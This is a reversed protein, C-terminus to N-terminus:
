ESDIKTVPNLKIVRDILWADCMVLSDGSLNTFPLTNVGSARRTLRFHFLFRQLFRVSDKPAIWEGKYLYFPNNGPMKVAKEISFDRLREPVVSPTPSGPSHFDRFKTTPYEGIWPYSSIVKGLTILPVDSSSTYDLYITEAPSERYARLIANYDNRCRLAYVDVTLIHTSVLIIILASLANKAYSFKLASVHPMCRNWMNVIVIIAALEGFWSARCNIFLLGSMIFAATAIGVFLLMPSRLLISLFNQKQRIFCATLVIGMVAFLPSYFLLTYLWQGATRSLTIVTRSTKGEASLLVALGIVLGATMAIQRATPVKRSCLWYFIIGSLAPLSFGEHSEGAIIGLFLLGATAPLSRKASEKFWLIFFGTFIATPLLYSHAYVMLGINAHWPLCLAIMAIVTVSSLLKGKTAALSITWRMILFMALGHIAAVIWKPVVTHTFATIMNVWRINNAHWENAVMDGIRSWPYDGGNIIYDRFYGMYHLDDDFLPTWYFWLAFTVALFTIFGTTVLKATNEQRQGM